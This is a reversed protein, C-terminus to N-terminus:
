ARQKILEAKLNQQNDYVVKESQIHEVETELYRIKEQAFGFHEKNWKRLANTTNFLSRRLQHCEMGDKWNVNWVEEIM